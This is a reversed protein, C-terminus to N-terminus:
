VDNNSEKKSAQRQKTERIKKLRKTWARSLSSVTMKIKGM